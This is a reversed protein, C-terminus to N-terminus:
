TRDGERSWAPSDNSPRLAETWDPPMDPSAGPQVWKSGDATTEIHVPEGLVSSIAGVVASEISREADAQVDLENRAESIRLRAGFLHQAASRYGAYALAREGREVARRAEEIIQLAEAVTM